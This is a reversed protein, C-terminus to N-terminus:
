NHHAGYAVSRAMDDRRAVKAVRNIAMAGLSTRPAGYTYTRSSLGGQLSECVLCWLARWNMAQQWNTM